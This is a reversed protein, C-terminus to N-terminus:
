VHLCDRDNRLLAPGALRRQGDMEGDGGLLRFAPPRDDVEVRLGAGGAPPVVRPPCLGGHDGGLRGAEGLHQIGGALRSRREGDDVRGGVGLAGRQGGGPRGVEDQDRAARRDEVQPGDM